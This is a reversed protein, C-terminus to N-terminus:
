WKWERARLHGAFTLRASGLSGFSFSAQPFFLLLPCRMALGCRRNRLIIGARTEPRTRPARKRVGRWTRTDPWCPRDLLGQAFRHLGAVRTRRAPEPAKSPASSSRRRCRAPKPPCCAMVVEQVGHQQLSALLHLLEPKSASFVRIKTARRKTSTPCPSTTDAKRLPAPSLGATSQPARCEV